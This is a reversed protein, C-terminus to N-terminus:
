CIKYCFIPTPLIIGTNYHAMSVRIIGTPGLGLADRVLRYSGFCGWSVGFNSNAELAEIFEKSDWGDITFSVIPLRKDIDDEGTGYITVSSMNGLYRLLWILLDDEQSKISAPSSSIYKAIPIVAQCLEPSGGDVGLKDRLTSAPSFTHGLSRMQNQAKWSAYLTAIHPGYAKDWSITYFDVDWHTVDVPRHPAFATGDVCVLAGFERIKESLAKVNHITGIIDSAHTFVVLRTKPTLVNSLKDLGLKPHKLRDKRLVAPTWWRIVLNERHALDLWPSINSENEMISIIIEDEPSFKLSYSLNRILQATSPGFVVEDVHAGMFKAVARHAEEYRATARQGTSYSTGIQANNSKLYDNIADISEGLIQTGSANDLYVQDQQLSPFRARTIDEYSM